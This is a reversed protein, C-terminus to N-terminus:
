GPLKVAGDTALWVVTGRSYPFALVRLYLCNILRVSRHSIPRAEIYTVQGIDQLAFQVVTEISVPVSRQLVTFWGGARSASPATKLVPVAPRLGV